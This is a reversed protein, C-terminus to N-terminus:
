GSWELVFTKKFMCNFLILSFNLSTNRYVRCKSLSIHIVAELRTGEAVLSYPHEVATYDEDINQCSVWECIM